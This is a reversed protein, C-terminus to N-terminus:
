FVFCFQNLYKNEFLKILYCESQNESKNIRKSIKLIYYLISLHLIRLRNLFIQPFYLREWSNYVMDDNLGPVAHLCKYM